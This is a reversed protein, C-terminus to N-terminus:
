DTEGPLLEGDLPPDGIRERQIVKLAEIGLKVANRLDSKANNWPHKNELILVEIAKDIKLKAEKNRRDHMLVPEIAVWSQKM